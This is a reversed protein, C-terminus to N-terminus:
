KAAAGGMTFDTCSEYTQQSEPADWWWQMVCAGPQSCQASVDPMTVSFSKNEDPITHATSAYDDQQILLDGIIANTSTDVISVNMVGTHPATIDAMIPVVQGATFTQVNATNDDFQYGKCLQLNCKTGDFTQDNMANQIEQQINGNLDGSAVNNVQEGCAAKFAEGPARIPPDKIIGHASVFPLLAIVASAAITFKM